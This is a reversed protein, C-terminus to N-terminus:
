RFIDHVKRHAEWGFAVSHFCLCPIGEALITNKLGEDLQAARMATVASPSLSPDDRKWPSHGEVAKRYKQSLGRWSAFRMAGTEDFLLIAVHECQLADCIAKM